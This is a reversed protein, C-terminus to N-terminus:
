ILFNKPGFIKTQKTYFINMTLGIRRASISVRSTVYYWTAYVEGDTVKRTSGSSKDLSFYEHLAIYTCLHVSVLIRSTLDAFLQM